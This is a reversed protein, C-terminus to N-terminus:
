LKKGPVTQLFFCGLEEKRKSTSSLNKKSDASVPKFDAISCLFNYKRFNSEEGEPGRDRESSWKEQTNSITM